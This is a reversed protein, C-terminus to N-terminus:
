IWGQNDNYYCTALEVYDGNLSFGMGSVCMGSGGLGGGNVAEFHLGNTDNSHMVYLENWGGSSSYNCSWMIQPNGWALSGSKNNMCESDGWNYLGVRNNWSFVYWTQNGGNNCGYQKVYNNWGYYSSMCMGTGENQMEVWGSPYGAVHAAGDKGFRVPRNFVFATTKGVKEYRGGYSCLLKASPQSCISPLKVASASASAAGALPVVALVATILGMRKLMSM